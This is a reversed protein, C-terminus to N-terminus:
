EFSTKISINNKNSRTEQSINLILSTTHPIFTSKVNMTGDM